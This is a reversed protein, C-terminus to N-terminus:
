RNISKTIEKIVELTSSDATFVSNLGQEEQAPDGTYHDGRQWTIHTPQALGGWGWFNCGAIMDSNTVISFVYNYYADRGTTNSGPSFAFNDRPYGFEELVLPKKMAHSISYHAEIYARTNICASDVATTITNKDIWGWNYPWIHINAYDIEPFTHIKQWLHIDQECGHKGESGTSVLHNADLSKILRAADHIWSALAEKNDDSFARPENAIQWSMIATCQSYPEGTISNVRGVINRIHNHFLIHASDCTAYQKVFDMYAPWGDVSPIPAKGLGTWELYTGYGGSWEWANNLYLVAKMQRKDLEVLLYDLGRLITDNYVGPATQLTPEIHSALGEAGDGGVLIRLNDIGLSKLTDLEAKLRARNGGRGESALIAGYWFNTGVYKYEKNGIYFKGDAVTVFQRTTPQHNCSQLLACLAIAATIVIFNRLNM